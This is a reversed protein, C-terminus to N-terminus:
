GKRCSTNSPVNSTNPISLASVSADLLCFRNPSVPYPADNVPAVVSHRQQQASPHQVANCGQLDRGGHGHLASGRCIQVAMPMCLVAEAPRYRWPWRLCFSNAEKSCVATDCRHQKSQPVRSSLGRAPHHVCLQTAGKHAKINCKM